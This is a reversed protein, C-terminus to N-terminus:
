ADTKEEQVSPSEKKKSVKKSAGTEAAAGQRRGSTAEKAKAVTKIVEDAVQQARAKVDRVIEDTDKGFRKEIEKKLENATAQAKVAVKLGEEVVKQFTKNESLDKEVRKAFETLQARAKETTERVNKSIEELDLSIRAM